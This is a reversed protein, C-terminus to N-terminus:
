SRATSSPPWSGARVRAPRAMGFGVVPRPCVLRMYSAHGDDVNVVATGRGAKAPGRGLDAFLAAKAARYQELTGHFDLHDTHLNTFVAADFECGLVRGQALAHSSVEMVVHTVGTQLCEWLLRQLDLSEPTTLTAPETRTEVRNVITGFMGTRVGAARLIADLLHVTTTKGETGTVGVLHLRASPEGYFRAALRALAQRSDLVAIQPLGDLGELPREGVIAVAGRSVAERAHRHGDDKGGRLCVFLDGPQVRRSDHALGRVLPDTAGATPSMRHVHVLESLRVVPSGPTM